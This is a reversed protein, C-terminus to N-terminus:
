ALQLFTSTYDLLNSINTKIGGRELEVRKNGYHSTVTIKDGDQMTTNVKLQKQTNVDILKPNVVTGKASVVIRMGLAINGSNLINVILSPSRNGVEIGSSTLELPFSFGGIWVAIDKRIEDLEEFFPKPCLLSLVATKIDGSDDVDLSEMYCQIKREVSGQKFTLTGQQKPIFISYLENRNKVYDRSIYFTIVINRMGMNATVFAEGDETIGKSTYINTKPLGIGDINKLYFPHFYGIKISEGQANKFILEKKDYVGM